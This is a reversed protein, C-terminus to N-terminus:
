AQIKLKVFTCIVGTTKSLIGFAVLAPPNIAFVLPIAVNLLDASASLIDLLATSLLRYAEPKDLDEANQCLKIIQLLARYSSEGLTITLGATAFIGVGLEVSFKMVITFVPTQEIIKAATTSLKKIIKFFDDNHLPKENQYIKAIEVIMRYTKETFIVVLGATAFTGMLTEANLKLVFGFIASGNGIEASLKSLNILGWESLTIASQFVDAVTMCAKTFLVTIPRKKQQISIGNIVSELNEFTVIRKELLHKILIEKLEEKNYFTETEIVEVLLGNIQSLNELGQSQALSCLLSELFVKKDLTNKTFPNIWFVGKKFLSYFGIGQTGRKIGLTIDREQIEGFQYYDFAAFLKGSIQLSKKAVKHIIHIIPLFEIKISAHPPPTELHAQEPYYSEVKSPM